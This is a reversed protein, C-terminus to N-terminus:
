AKSYHLLLLGVDNVQMGDQPKTGREYITLLSYSFLGNWAFLLNQHNEKMLM